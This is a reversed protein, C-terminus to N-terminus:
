KHGQVGSIMGPRVNAKVNINNPASQETLTRGTDIDRLYNGKTVRTREGASLLIMWMMNGLNANRDM